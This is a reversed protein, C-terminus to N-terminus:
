INNLGGNSSALCVPGGMPNLSPFFEVEEAIPFSLPTDQAVTVVKSEPVLKSKVRSSGGPCLFVLCQLLTGKLPAKGALGKGWFATTQWRSWTPISAHWRSSHNCLLSPCWCCPSSSNAKLLLYCLLFHKCPNQPKHATLDWAVRNWYLSPQTTESSVYPEAMLYFKKSHKSLHM